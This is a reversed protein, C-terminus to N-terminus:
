TNAPAPLPVQKVKDASDKALTNLAVIIVGAILVLAVVALALEISIAGRDGAVRAAKARGIRYTFLQAGFKLQLLTAGILPLMVAGLLPRIRNM